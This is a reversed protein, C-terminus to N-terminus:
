GHQPYLPPLRYPPRREPRPERLGRRLARWLADGRWHTEGAGYLAGALARVEVAQAPCLRDALEGLNRPPDHPWRQGAWALLAHAAPRMRQHRCHRRLQWWLRWRPLSAACWRYTRAGVLLLALLVSATLVYVWYPPHASTALPAEMSQAESGALAPSAPDTAPVPATDDPTGVGPAVTVTRGPLRAVRREGTTVDWWPIELEPIELTGERTPLVSFSRVQRGMVWQGDHRDETDPPEPYVRAGPMEPLELAPLHAASLGETELLLSRTLPEGVRAEDLDDHWIERLQLDRAPLWHGRYDAPRPLVTLRVTESSAQVPQGRDFLTDFASRRMGRGFGGNDPSAARGRFRIPPIELEGSTEPFIAYRREVVAYGEGGVTTRYSRDDGIREVVARAPAPDGLSGELLPISFLLRVTYLIQSQVYPDGDGTEASVELRIGEADVPVPPTDTVTVRLPRTQGDGVKLPPIELTGARRPALEVQWQRQVSSDGNVIQVQTSSRNGLIEFDQQLPALDPQATRAGSLTITLVLVDEQYLTDRDLSATVEQAKLIPALLLCALLLGLVSFAVLPSGQSKAVVAM